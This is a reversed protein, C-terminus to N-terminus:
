LGLTIRAFLTYGVPHRGYAGNLAAPKAYAALSGGLALGFPGMPIRRAYGLQFKTVRFVQDHLPNAHDPFLEDNAVNEIRGFLTNRGQKGGINWNAEALWATLTDGPVRKKASFGLMASLGKGDAYHASATFRHEDEGPHTSEPQKIEGYSAQIAWRPTPTLTARVSWSDLRPTEINWRREDPEQGRFASAEVQWTRAAYGATVVGYTIHTSDFWHHTIPPEPNYQASARHVFASPGLAPEGVPGGYLFLSGDGANIDVRAALEMFLDHPHQRDVIPAGNATEGTAFLNPYGSPDMAPELSFMSKFQVRGWSTEREAMLMAMSTVYVKDDGRPGSHDTYQLSATGHAMLMWNGSMVHIGPMAEDRNPLISTGSGATGHAAMPCGINAVQACDTAIEEQPEMGPMDMPMGGHQMAHDHDQGWAQAAPIMACGLALLLRYTM